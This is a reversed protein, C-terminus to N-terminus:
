KIVQDKIQNLCEHCTILTINTNLRPYYKRLYYYADFKNQWDFGFKDIMHIDQKRYKKLEKEKISCKVHKYHNLKNM